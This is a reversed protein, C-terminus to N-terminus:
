KVKKELKDIQKKMRDQDDGVNVTAPFPFILEIAIPSPWSHVQCNWATEFNWFGNEKFYKKFMWPNGAM